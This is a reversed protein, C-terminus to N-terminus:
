QRGSLRRRYRGSQAGDAGDVGRWAEGRDRLDGGEKERHRCFLAQYRVLGLWTVVEVTFFDMGVLVGLHAKIFTAWSM